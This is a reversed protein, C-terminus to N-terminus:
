EGETRADVATGRKLFGLMLPNVVDPCEVNPVHGVGELIVLEANPLDRALREGHRLPVALDKNGWLILTSATIGKLGAPLNSGHPSATMALLADVSGKVRSPRMRGELDRPDACTPDGWANVWASAHARASTLAFGALARPLYPVRAALKVVAPIKLSYAAPALLILKDVRKPYDRAVQLAVAGGLSHGVLSARALGQADLFERVTRAFYKLSYRRETVRSSFGFGILDIAYVRHALALADINKAWNHTSDMLGHILVIPTGREGKAIYHMRAGDSLTVFDGDGADDLTLTEWEDVRKNGLVVVGVALAGAGLAALGIAGNFLRRIM